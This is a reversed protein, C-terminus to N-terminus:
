VVATLVANFQAAARTWTFERIKSVADMWVPERRFKRVIRFAGQIHAAIEDESPVFWEGKNGHFWIGDNATEKEFEKLHLFDPVHRYYEGQGTWNGAIAPVGSALCEILPLNWGEGKSPFIGCDAEAYLDRMFEIEVFSLKIELSGKTWIMIDPNGSTTAYFSSAPMFKEQVLDNVLHKYGMEPLFPNASHLILRAREGALARSFSRIVQATGKREEYKGVHLFTFPRGEREARAQPAFPFFSTDVGEPVVFAGGLGNEELIQAGWSSPTVLFDCSKLAAKQIPTFGDTEFVAMGIRPRGSFQTLFAIDFIMLSPVQPVFSARNGLWKEIKPTKLSANGIGLPPILCIEYGIMELDQALNMAHIGTGLNNPPAFLNIRM